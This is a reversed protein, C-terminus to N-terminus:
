KRNLLFRGDPDIAVSKVASEAIVTTERQSVRIPRRQTGAETELAIELPLDFLPGVQTLVVTNGATRAEFRPVTNEKLWPMVFSTM